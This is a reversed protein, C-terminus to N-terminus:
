VFKWALLRHQLDRVRQEGSVHDAELKDIVDALDPARRKVKPFLFASENPHHLREPFEDIYFLMAQLVEFFQAPSDGPGREVLMRMSLLMARLSAQEGRIFQLTATM